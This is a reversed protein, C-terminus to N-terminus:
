YLWEGCVVHYGVPEEDIFSMTNFGLGFSTYAPVYVMNVGDTIAFCENPVTHLQNSTSTPLRTFSSGIGDLFDNGFQQVAPSDTYEQTLVLRGGEQMFLKLDDFEEKAFPSGTGEKGPLCVVIIRAGSTDIPEENTDIMTYGEEIVIDQLNGTISSNNHNGGHGTYFKVVTNFSNPGGLDFNIVNRFFQRNDEDEEDLYGDTFINGDGSVILNPGRECDIGEVNVHILLPEDLMDEASDDDTVLLQVQYTGPTDFPHMIIEPTVTTYEYFGDNGIDWQYQTIFGDVDYSGSPDLFVDLPAFGSQPDTMSADAVPPLNENPGEGLIPAEWVQYAALQANAPFDFGTVGPIQVSYNKPDASIVAILLEQNLVDIPHVNPITCNSLTVIPNFPEWIWNGSATLDVMGDFLTPSEAVVGSIESLAGSFQGMGQWDTIHLDFILDGGYSSESEFFAWSGSNAISIQVAEARNATLPFDSTQAPPIADPDPEYYSSSIAYKFNFSPFGSEMPFQMVYERELYGPIVTDFSGRDTLTLHEVDWPDDPELGNAFYKFPNLNSTSEFGKPAKSGESYGFITDYTTFEQQNWWRTYGDANTLRANFLYHPWHITPDIQSIYNGSEAMFIGMVDFGRFNSGPFPHQIGIDAVVKGSPFDTGPKINVYLLSTPALPPQLFRTVNAEFMMGRIPVVEASESDPDIYIDYIGWLAEHAQRSGSKRFEALDQGFGPNVPNSSGSCGISLVILVALTACVSTVLGRM